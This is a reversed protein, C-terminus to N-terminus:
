GAMSMGLREGSTLEVRQEGATRTGAVRVGGVEIGAAQGMQLDVVVEAQGRVAGELGHSSVGLKDGHAAHAM